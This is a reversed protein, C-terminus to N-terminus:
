LAYLFVVGARVETLICLSSMRFSFQIRCKRLLHWRLSQRSCRMLLRCKSIPFPRSGLATKFAGGSCNLCSCRRLIRDRKRRNKNERVDGSRSARKVAVIRKNRRRIGPPLRVALTQPVLIAGNSHPEFEQSILRGACRLVLPSVSRCNAPLITGKMLISGVTLGLIYGRLRVHFGSQPADNVAFSLSRAERSAQSSM